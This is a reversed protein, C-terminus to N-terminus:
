SRDGVIGKQPGYLARSEVIIVDLYNSVM